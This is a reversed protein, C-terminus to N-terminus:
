KEQLNTVMGPVSSFSRRTGTTDVMSFSDGSSILATWCDMWPSYADLSRFTNLRGASASVGGLTGRFYFQLASSLPVCEEERGQINIDGKGESAWHTRPLDGQCNGVLFDLSRSGGVTGLPLATVCSISGSCVAPSLLLIIPTVIAKPARENTIFDIFFFPSTKVQTCCM